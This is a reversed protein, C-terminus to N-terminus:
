RGGMAIEAAPDRVANRGARPPLRDDEWGDRNLWTTPHPIFQAEPLNPDEALCVAGSIIDNASARTLARDFALRATRKGVRRPYAAWFRAFAESAKQVPVPRSPVPNPASEEFNARVDRMREAASERSGLVDERTKNYILYDHVSWADGEVDWLGAERLEKVSGRPARKVFASPLRGDTLHSACYCLSEIYTRFSRDSLDMVKPNSPLRDDLKVWVM